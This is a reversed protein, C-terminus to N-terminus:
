GTPKREMVALKENVGFVFSRRNARRKGDRFEMCRTLRVSRDKIAPPRMVEWCMLSSGPRILIDGPKLKKARMTRLGVLGKMGLRDMHQEMLASVKM